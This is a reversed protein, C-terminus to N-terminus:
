QTVNSVTVYALDTGQCTIGCICAGASPDPAVVIENSPFQDSGVPEKWCIRVDQSQMNSITLASADAAFPQYTSEVNASVLTITKALQVRVFQGDSLVLDSDDVDIVQQVNNQPVLYLRLFAM